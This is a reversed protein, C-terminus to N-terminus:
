VMLVQVGLLCVVVLWDGGDILCWPLFPLIRGDIM